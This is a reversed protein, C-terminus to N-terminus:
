VRDAAFARPEPIYKLCFELQDERQPGCKIISIAREVDADTLGSNSDTHVFNPALGADAASPRDDLICFNQVEPHMDLWARIELARNSYESGDFATRSFISADSHGPTRGAIRSAAIGHRHLIYMIYEDFHRWFTSLVIKGDTEMVLRKFRDVLDSDLRIHNAAPTKNLVGDIDLFIVAM